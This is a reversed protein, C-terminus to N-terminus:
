LTPIGNFALAAQWKLIARLFDLTMSVLPCFAQALSAKHGLLRLLLAKLMRVLAIRMSHTSCGLYPLLLALHGAV